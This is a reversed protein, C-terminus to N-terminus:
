RVDPPRGTGATLRSVYEYNERGYGGALFEKWDPGPIGRRELAARLGAPASGPVPEGAALLLLGGARTYFYHPPMEGWLSRWSGAFHAAAAASAERLDEESPRLRPVPGYCFVGGDEPGAGNVPMALDAWFMPNNLYPLRCLLAFARRTLVLPSASLAPSASRAENLAACARLYAEKDGAAEDPLLVYVRYLSDLVLSLQLGSRAALDRGAADFAARNFWASGGAGTESGCSVDPAAQHLAAFARYAYEGRDQLMYDDLPLGAGRAYDRRSLRYPTGAPSTYRLIDALNKLCNRRLFKEPMGGTFFHRMLLTYAYFAESLDAVGGQRPAGCAQEPVGSLLRSAGPFEAAKAGWSGMFASFGTRDTIMVEGTFPFFAKLVRLRRALAKYVSWDEGPSPVDLVCALDMDSLGPVWDRGAMGRYLYLSRIGRGPLLAVAAAVGASCAARYVLSFPWAGATAAVFRFIPRSAHRTLPAASPPLWPSGGVRVRRARLSSGPALAIGPSPARLVSVDSLFNVPGALAMGGMAGGDLALRLASFAGASDLGSESASVSTDRARLSAGASIHVGRRGNLSCGSIDASGGNLNLAAAGSSSLSCNRLLLFAAGSSYLVDGASLLASEAALLRARGGFTACPLAFTEARVGRLEVSSSASATVARGPGSISCGRLDMEARGAAEAASGTVGELGCNEAYLESNGAAKLGVGSGYVSCAELRLRARGAASAAAGSQAELRCARLVGTTEGSFEAGSLGGRLVSDELLIDACDEARLCAGGTGTFQLGRGRFSRCGLLLAGLLSADFVCNSFDAAAALELRVGPGGAGRFVSNAARVRNLGLGEIGFTCNEFLCDQLGLSNHGSLRLAAGASDSVSCRTLAIGNTGRATIGAGNGSFACGSAYLSSKGSLSVAHGKNGDFRCADLRLSVGGSASIGFESGSVACDLATLVARGEALLAGTSCGGVSFKELLVAAEGSVALARPAKPVAVGCISVRAQDAAEFAPGEACDAEGDSFLLTSEDLARAAPGGQGRFYCNKITGAAEGSLELGRRCSLFLSDEARLFAHDWASLACAGAAEMSCYALSVKGAGLAHVGGFSPGRFRVPAAASGAASFEGYVLIKAFRSDLERLSGGAAARVVPLFWPESRLFSIEAGPEVRVSAGPAITLYDAVTVRGAWVEDATIRGSKVGAVPGAASASGPRFPASAARVLAPHLRSEWYLSAANVLSRFARPLILAAGYLSFYAAYAAVAMVKNAALSYVAALPWLSGNGAPWRVAGRELASVRAAPQFASPPFDPLFNADGKTLVFRGNLNLLVRHIVYGAPRGAAWKVLLALDGPALAGPSCPEALASDGPELAFRMSHGLVPYSKQM